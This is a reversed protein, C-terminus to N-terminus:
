DPTRFYVRRENGKFFNELVSISHGCRIDRPEYCPPSPKALGPGHVRIGSPGVPKCHHGRALLLIGKKGKKKKRKFQRELETLYFYCGGIQRGPSKPLLWISNAM